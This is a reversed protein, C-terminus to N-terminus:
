SEGRYFGGNYCHLQLTVNSLEVCLCVCESVFLCDLFFFVIVCYVAGEGKVKKLPKMKFERTHAEKSEKRGCNGYVQTWKREAQCGLREM